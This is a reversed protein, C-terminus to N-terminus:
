VAGSRPYIRLRQAAVECDQVAANNAHTKTKGVARLLLTFEQETLYKYIQPPNLGPWLRRLDPLGLPPSLELIAGLHIAFGKEAGAFYGEFESRTLGAKDKVNQWLQDPQACTVFKVSSIAGLAKVPSSVYLLLATGQPVRPRTRRLEVSKKGALIREAYKPRISLLLAHRSM